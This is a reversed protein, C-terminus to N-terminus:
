IPLNQRVSFRPRWQCFDPFIGGFAAAANIAQFCSATVDDQLLEANGM